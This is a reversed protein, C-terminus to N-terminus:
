PSSRAQRHCPWLEDIGDWMVDTLAVKRYKPNAAAKDKLWALEQDAAADLGLARPMCGYHNDRANTVVDLAFTKCGQQDSSCSDLFGSLSSTDAAAAPGGLIAAALALASLLRKSM